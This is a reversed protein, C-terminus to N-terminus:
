ARSAADIKRLEGLLTEFGAYDLQSAGDCPAQDPDPHVEVYLADIGVAVAARALPAVMEREGGSADGGMGPQQVSHTADFCVPAIRRMRVLGRM